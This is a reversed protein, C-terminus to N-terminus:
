KAPWPAVEGSSDGSSAAMRRRARETYSQGKAPVANLVGIEGATPPGGTGPVAARRLAAELLQDEIGDSSVMAPREAPIHIEVSATIGREAAIVALQEQLARGYDAIDDRWVAEIENALAEEREGVVDDDAVTAREWAASVEDDFFRGLGLDFLESEADVHVKVPETRWGPLDDEGATGEVIQRLLDAEWSGSRGALLGESGGLNAAAHTASNALLEAVDFGERGAATLANTLVESLESWRLQREHGGDSPNITGM